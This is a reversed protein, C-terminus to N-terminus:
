SIAVAETAEGLGRGQNLCPIHEDAQAKLLCLLPAPNAHSVSTKTLSLLTPKQKDELGFFNFQAKQEGGRLCVGM